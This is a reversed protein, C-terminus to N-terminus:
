HTLFFGFFGARNPSHTEVYSNPPICVHLGYFPGETYEAPLQEPSSPGLHSQEYEQHSPLTAQLGPEM